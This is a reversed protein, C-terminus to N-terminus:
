RIGERDKGREHSILPNTALNVHRTGGTSCSSGMWGSCFVPFAYSSHFMDTTMQSVPIGYRDVLDHHRGYLKRLSSKLNVLLFGQSLLEPVEWGDPAGSNLRPSTYTKYITTQGKTRIKKKTM